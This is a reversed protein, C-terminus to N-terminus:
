VEEVKYYYGILDRADNVSILDNEHLIKALVGVTKTLATIQYQLRQVYDDCGRAADDIAAAAADDMTAPTFPASCYPGEGKTLIFQSM